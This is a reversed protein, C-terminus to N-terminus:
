EFRGRLAARPAVRRQLMAGLWLGVGVVVIMGTLILLLPGPELVLPVDVPSGVLEALGLAPRLLLFLGAGLAGGAVFAAVTTPGHEAAVLLLAQRSTLGLTRLHAVEQARALGSLALAAAIGLAAYLATALAAALIGTRVANTVPLARLGAAAEAQSSVAVTPFDAALAQRLAAAGDAPARVIEVVPAVRAAPSQAKFWERPVVMWLRDLDLGPFADRVEVVRYQMTYGEVSMEFVEDLKAGKAAEALSRSVIAPIPGTGPTAFGPPFRPDAPTGALVTDLAGAEVLAIQTQPGYLGAPMTAVFEGAAATVGPLSAADLGTPIPGNPQQLRFPGGVEQWAAIDAGRDLNDLSAMAFAGVTATALLVLLVAASAGGETARRAALMPVLGRRRAGVSAALRLPIPYVRIAVIGAAVGVLVPVAAILPDFGAVEGAAGGAHVGRESLLYAAAAALGVVLAEFVLRRGGIRGTVIRDGPRREPGLARAVPAVTGLLAIVAAGAVGAAAVASATPSGGPVALGAVLAALAAAPVAVLLGEALVPLLVQRGSAGRSRALAMTARRRRAALVAILGLTAAAALAPGLAMVAFISEAATWRGQHAVLLALIGSRLATDVGVVVNASPYAVQLRRLDQILAPVGAEDIRGPDLFWRWTYRLPAGDGSPNPIRSMSTRLADHIHEDVLLDADLMQAELSLARIVPHVLHLDDLWFDSAPDPVEYIGTITAFAYVPTFLHGFLTDTDDAVLPVTEGLGLGFAAATQASVSVEYVPVGNDHEPGVGDRTTVNATPSGGEVYRIHDAIGEQIRLRVFAPDTTQKQVRFRGTAVSIDGRVILARVSPPITGELETGAARIEALPDGAPGSLYLRQQQFQLNRAVAPASTVATRVADDGLRALVRPAMAAALATVLVLIVLGSTPLRDERLRRLAVRIWAM